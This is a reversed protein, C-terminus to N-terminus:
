VITQHIIKLFKEQELEWNYKSKALNFANRRYDNLLKRDNFFETIIDALANVDGVPYLKGINKNESIFQVQAKTNSAVIALGSILYTFIKNTLCIDRNFPTNLELALGLDFKGALEFIEGAYIPPYYKIDFHALQNFYNADQLSLSGLLHLEILPNEMQNLAEIVDELGRNKGITQSFWFLKLNPNVDKNFEPQDKIEFVNNIVKFHLNPYLQKYAEKILPSAATIYDVQNLYQDEIATKLKVDMVRLDDSIENRHFDEADFGCKAQNRKAANVAIPLAGLNHAIYLDAKITVAAKLQWAYNRNILLEIINIIPYMWRAFRQFVATKFRLIKNTPTWLLYDYTLDPHRALIRMDETVLYEMYQTFVVHVKYGANSLSSAEKILRPNSAIHGTTILCIQKAQM